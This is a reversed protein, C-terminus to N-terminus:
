EKAEFWTEGAVTNVVLPVRLEMAEVMEVRVREEEVALDARVVELVLEDHIQLILRARSRREKLDTYINNMAAKILDAASGQVVSNVATREALARMRPHRSNIDRIPRRRGLLTRVSGEQRARALTEEVFSRVGPHREFYSRIIEAAEEVSIGLDQSLGFPTMGYVIGFNISKALRRMAPTVEAAAVGYIQAAVSTHIDEGKLFSDVLREDGSLHALIRLEVQSYDASLLLRDPDGARFAKRIERGLETKVPINQLNPNSSSLRGTAAVTQNFSTHIRGTRSKQLQPLAEVYTGLLKTLERHEIIKQVVPHRDRLDALVEGATSAVGSKGKPGPPLGLKGYLVEALQPPSAVNFEVGALRHIEATLETLSRRIKEGMATLHAADISIGALEMDALVELLPMEVEEMLRWLQAQRLREELVLRLRLTVDADECAYASIKELPVQEMSIQNKGTGILSETSVKKHGLYDLALIDLNHARVEPNLLYSAVMTDFVVPKLNVGAGRLFLIDFKANQGVKPSAPDELRPRLAEVVKELTLELPEPALLPVYFAEVPAERSRRDAPPEPALGPLELEGRPAPPAPPPESFVAFSLGVLRDRFPDLGTTETDVAIQDARALRAALEQLERATRVTSYRSPLPTSPAKDGEPPTGAAATGVSEDSNAAAAPGPVGRGPPSLLPSGLLSDLSLEGAQKAALGAGTGGNGSGAAGANAARSYKEMLRLFRFRQFLSLLAPGDAPQLLYAAPEPGLPLPCNVDLTVLARSLEASERGARLRERLRPSLGPIEATFLDEFRTVAGLIKLATKPGIGEIGPVNDSSDGVLALFDVVQDPRLGKRALLGAPDLCEGDKPSFIRVHEDILQELDKDKSVILTALGAQSAKRALTAVIDDAEYGAVEICPIRYAALVEKILPIQAELEEPMPARQAKYAAYREDRFTRGPSDFIVAFHSPKMALLREILQTFAFVAGVSLGTPTQLNGIAYYAQYAYSHGDIIVFKEGEMAPQAPPRSGMAKSLM